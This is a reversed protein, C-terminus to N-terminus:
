ASSRESFAFVYFQIFDGFVRIRSDQHQNTILLRLPRFFKRCFDDDHDFNAASRAEISEMAARASM